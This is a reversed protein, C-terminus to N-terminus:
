IKIEASVCSDLDSGMLHRRAHDFLAFYATGVAIGTGSEQLAFTL